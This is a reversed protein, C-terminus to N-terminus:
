AREPDVLELVGAALLRRELQDDVVAADLLAVNGTRHDVGGPGPRAGVREAGAAHGGRALAGVALADGVADRVDEAGVAVAVGALAHEDDAGPVRGEVREDVEDRQALLLRRRLDHPGHAAVGRAVLEAAAAGVLEGLAAREALRDAPEDLVGAGDLEHGAKLGPRDLARPSCIASPSPSRSSTASSTIAVM